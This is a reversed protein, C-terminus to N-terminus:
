EQLLLLYVGNLNSKKGSPTPCTGITFSSDSDHGSVIKWSNFDLPGSCTSYSWCFPTTNTSCYTNNNIIHPPSVHGMADLVSVLFQNSAAEMINNDVTCGSANAGFSPFFLMQANEWSPVGNNRLTNNTIVHNKGSVAIGALSNNEITNRDILFPKISPSTGGEIMIGSSRLENSGCNLITNSQITNGGGVFLAYIGAADYSLANANSVTNGIIKNNEVTNAILPGNSSLSIGASGSNLVTNGTVTNGHSFPQANAAFIAIGVRLASEVRNNIITNNKSNHILIGTQHSSSGINSVHMNQVVSEETGFLYVGIGKYGQVAIDKIILHDKHASNIGTELQAIKVDIFSPHTASYLYITNNQWYWHGPETLSALSSIIEPHGLLGLQIEQGNANLQRAYVNENEYITFFTIGSVTNVSKSTVWLNSYHADTQMLVAGKKLAIPVSPFQLTTIPPKAVGEYLLLGPNNPWSPQTTKYINGAVHAWQLAQPFDSYTGDLLPRDGSGYAGFTIPLSATGSSPIVLPEHWVEGRKFLIIDGPNFEKGNVKSVKQWANATSTGTM